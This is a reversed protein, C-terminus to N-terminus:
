ALKFSPKFNDFPLSLTITNYEAGFNNYKLASVGDITMGIFDFRAVIRTYSNDLVILATNTKSPTYSQSPIMGMLWDYLNKYVVFYEDLFLTIALPSYKVVAGEYVLGHEIYDISNININIQPLEFDSIWLQLDPFKEILFFARSNYSNSFSKINSVDITTM